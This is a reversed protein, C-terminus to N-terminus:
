QNISVSLFHTVIFKQAAPNTQGPMFMCYLLNDPHLPSFLFSIKSVGLTQQIPHHHLLYSHTTVTNIGTQGVVLLSPVVTHLKMMIKTTPPSPQGTTILLHM